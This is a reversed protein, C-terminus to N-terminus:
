RELMNEMKCAVDVYVFKLSRGAVRADQACYAKLSDSLMFEYYTFNEPGFMTCARMVFGHRCLIAAVGTRDYKNAEAASM